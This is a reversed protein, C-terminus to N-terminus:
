AAEPWILPLEADLEALLEEVTPISRLGAKVANLVNYCYRWVRDRWEMCVEAEARFILDTSQIYSCASAISDYGKEQARSDMRAQVADTLRKQIGSKTLFINIADAVIEAETQMTQMYLERAVWIM